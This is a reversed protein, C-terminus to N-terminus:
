CLMLVRAVRCCAGSISLYKLVKSNSEMDQDAQNIGACHHSLRSTMQQGSTNTITMSTDGLEFLSCRHSEGLRTVTTTYQVKRQKIMVMMYSVMM